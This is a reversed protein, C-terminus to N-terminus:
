GPIQEVPLVVLLFPVTCVPQFVNLLVSETCQYKNKNFITLSNHQFRQFKTAFTKALRLSLLDTSLNLRVAHEIM